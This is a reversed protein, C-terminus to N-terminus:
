YVQEKQKLLSDSGMKDNFQELIINMRLFNITYVKPRNNVPALEYQGMVVTHIKEWTQVWHGWTPLNFNALTQTSEGSFHVFLTYWIAAVWWLLLLHFSINEPFTLHISKLYFIFYVCTLDAPESIQVSSRM